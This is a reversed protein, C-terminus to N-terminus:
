EENLLVAFGYSFPRSRRLRLLETGALNIDGIGMPLRARLMKLFPVYGSHPAYISARVIAGDLKAPDDELNSM